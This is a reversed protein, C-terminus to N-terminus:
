PLRARPAPHALLATETLRTSGLPWRTAHLFGAHVDLCWEPDRDRARGSVRLVPDRGCWTWIDGRGMWRNSASTAQRRSHQRVPGQAAVAPSSGRGNRWAGGSSGPGPLGSLAQYIEGIESADANDTLRIWPCSFRRRADGPSERAM